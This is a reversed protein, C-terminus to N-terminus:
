LKADGLEVARLLDPRYYAAPAVFPGVPRTGGIIAQLDQGPNQRMGDIREALDGAIGALADLLEIAAVPGLNDPRIGINGQELLGARWLNGVCDIQSSM